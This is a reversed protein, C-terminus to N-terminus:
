ANIKVLHKSVLQSARITSFRRKYQPGPRPTGERVSLQISNDSFLMRAIQIFPQRADGRKAVNFTLIGEPVTRPPIIEDDEEEPPARAYRRTHVGDEAVVVLQGFKRQM